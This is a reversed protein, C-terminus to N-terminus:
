LPYKGGWHIAWSGDEKQFLEGRVYGVKKTDADLRAQAKARSLEPATVEIRPAAVDAYATAPPPKIVVNRPSGPPSEIKDESPEYFELAKILNTDIRSLIETYRIDSKASMGIAVLGLGVSFLALSIGLLNIQSGTETTALLAVLLLIFGVIFFVVGCPELKIKIQNWFGLKQRDYDPINM